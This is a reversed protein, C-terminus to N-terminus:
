QLQEVVSFNRRIPEYIVIQGGNTRLMFFVPQIYAKFGLESHIELHYLDFESYGIITEIATDLIGQDLQSAQSVEPISDAKLVTFNGSNFLTDGQFIAFTRDQNFAYITDATTEVPELVDEPSIFFTSVGRYTGAVVELAEYDNEFDGVQSPTIHFTYVVDGGTFFSPRLSFSIAVAIIFTLLIVAAVVIVIGMRRAFLPSIITIPSKV